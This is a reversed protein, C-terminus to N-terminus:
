LEHSYLSTTPLNLWARAFEDAWDTIHDGGRARIYDAWTDVWDGLFGDPLDM